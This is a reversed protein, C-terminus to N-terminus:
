ATLTISRRERLFSARMRHCYFNFGDCSRRWLAVTTGANQFFHCFQLFKSLLFKSKFFMRTVVRQAIFGQLIFRWEPTGPYRGGSAHRSRSFWM